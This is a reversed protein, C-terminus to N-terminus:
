EEPMEEKEDEMSDNYGNSYSQQLSERYFELVVDAKTNQKSVRGGTVECYVTAVEDMIEAYDHLENMLANLNLVGDEFIHPVNAWFTKFTNLVDPEITTPDYHVIKQM